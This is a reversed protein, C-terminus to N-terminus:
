FRRRDIGLQRLMTLLLGPKIEGHKVQAQRQGLRLTGHSGKGHDPDFDFELGNRRAYRRARRVFQQGNMPPIKVAGSLTTLAVPRGAIGTREDQVDKGGM